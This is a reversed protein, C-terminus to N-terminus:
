FIFQLMINRLIIEFLEHIVFSSLFNFTYKARLINEFKVIVFLKCQLVQTVTTQLPKFFKVEM